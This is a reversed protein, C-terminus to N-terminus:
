DDMMTTMKQVHHHNDGREFASPTGHMPLRFGLDGPYLEVSLMMLPSTFESDDGVTILTADPLYITQAEISLASSSPGRVM